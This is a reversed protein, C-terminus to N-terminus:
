ITNVVNRTESEDLLAFLPVQQGTLPNLGIGVSQIPLNTRYKVGVPYRKTEPYNQVIPLNSVQTYQDPPTPHTLGSAYDPMYPRGFLLSSHQDQHATLAERQKFMQQLIALEQALKAVEQKLEVVDKNVDTENPAVSPDRRDFKPGPTPELDPIDRKVGFGYDTPLIAQVWDSPNTPTPTTEPQNFMAPESVPTPQLSRLRRIENQLDFNKQREELLDSAMASVILDVGNLLTYTAWIGYERRYIYCSGDTYKMVIFAQKGNKPILDDSVSEDLHFHPDNTDTLKLYRQKLSHFDMTYNEDLGDIGLIELGTEGQGAVRVAEAFSKSNTLYYTVWDCVWTPQEQAFIDEVNGRQDVSNYYYLQNEFILRVDWPSKDTKRYAIVYCVDDPLGVPVNLETKEDLYVDMDPNSFSNEQRTTGYLGLMDFWNSFAHRVPSAAREWLNFNGEVATFDLDTLPVEVEEVNATVTYLIYQTM